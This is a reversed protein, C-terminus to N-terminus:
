GHLRGACRPRQIGRVVTCGGRLRRRRDTRGARLALRGDVTVDSLGLRGGPGLAAYVRGLARRKDPVISLVCEMVAVDFPAGRPEAEQIDGEVFSVLAGVGDRQALEVGAAVGDSELTVGVTECGLTKALHVATTGLGSGADLVRSARGIELLGALRSTLPLGGPHFSDGLLWRAMPHSYSATCCAKLEAAGLTSSM